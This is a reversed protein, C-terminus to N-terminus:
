VLCEIGGEAVWWGEEEKRVMRWEVVLEFGVTKRIGYGRDGLM